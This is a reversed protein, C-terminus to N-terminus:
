CCAGRLRLIQNQLRLVERRDVVGISAAELKSLSRQARETLGTTTQPYWPQTVAPSVDYLRECKLLVREMVGDPGVNWDDGEEDDLSFSFSAGNIEKREIPVIVLERLISTNPPRTRTMLGVEDTELDLTGATNRGLVFNVDHNFLSPVDQKLTDGFFGKAIKERWGWRKGGYVPSWQDFVAAYSEIQPPSGEEADAARTLKIQILDKKFFRREMDMM